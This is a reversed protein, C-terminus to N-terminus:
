EFGQYLLLCDFSSSEQNYIFYMVKAHLLLQLLNWRDSSISYNTLVQKLYHTIPEFKKKKGEPFCEFGCSSYRKVNNKLSFLM